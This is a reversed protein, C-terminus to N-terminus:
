LQALDPLLSRINYPKLLNKRVLKVIQLLRQIILIGRKSYASSVAFAFSLYVINAYNVQASHKSTVASARPFEVM